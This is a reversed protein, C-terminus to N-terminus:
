AVEMFFAPGRVIAGGSVRSPHDHASCQYSGAGAGFMQRDFDGNRQPSATSVPRLPLPAFFLPAHLWTYGRASTKAKSDGSNTLHINGSILSIPSRATHTAVTCRTRNGDASGVVASLDVVQGMSTYGRTAVVRTRTM